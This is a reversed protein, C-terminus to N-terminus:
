AIDKIEAGLQGDCEYILVYAGDSLMGPNLVLTKGLREQGRSEHIHGCVCIDPQKEEIFKRVATSGVHMGNSIKDCATDKPPNHSILIKKPYPAAQRWCQDLWKSYDEESFESPTHFPTITSGGIGFIAIDPTLEYVRAHLNHGKGNLWEDVEPKDMNGIQAYVPLSAAFNMRDLVEQAQVADGMLTLDGSIIVGNAKDLEPISKVKEANDHVDGFVVWLKCDKASACSCKEPNNQM